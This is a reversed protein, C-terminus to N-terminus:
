RSGPASAPRRRSTTLLRYAALILAAEVVLPIVALWVVTYNWVGAATMKTVQPLNNLLTLFGLYFGAMWFQRAVAWLLGLLRVVIRPSDKFLWLGGAVSAFVGGFGVALGAASDDLVNVSVTYDNLRLWYYGLRLLALLAAIVLIGLYERAPQKQRVTKFLLLGIFLPISLAYIYPNSDAYVNTWLVVWAYDLADLVTDAPVWGWPIQPSLEIQFSGGPHLLLLYKDPGLNLTQARSNYFLDNESLATQGAVTVFPFGAAGDIKVALVGDTDSYGQIVRSGDAATQDSLIQYPREALMHIRPDGFMFLEPSSYIMRTASKNQVQAVIGLPFGEWTTLGPAFLGIKSFSATHPSNTFGLFAAAGQDIFGLAMSDPLWPRFISCTLSYIVGPRLPPIEAATLEDDAGWDAAGDNWFWTRGGSHRTWYFYDAQSLAAVLASQTLAAQAPSGGSIDFLTPEFVQQLVDVDGGIFSTGAQVLTRREWLQEAAVRTSGSIIGLAPYDGHSAFAAGISALNAITLNGPAAVLIVFRPHFQWVASFEDVLPLNEAQAIRQALSFYPDTPAAVVVTEASSPQTPQPAPRPWTLAAGLLLVLGSVLILSPKLVRTHTPM